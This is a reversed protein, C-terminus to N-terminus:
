FAIMFATSAFFNNAVAQSNDRLFIKDRGSFNRAEIRWTANANIYVDFNASLGWVQFGNVTGSSILVGQKDSYYEVRAALSTKESTNLKLILVPSYWTNMRASGKSAQEMGADLGVTAALARNLQFIGYFNHFYRMRKLSDPQDNGIFTSSNLTVGQNPKWTVQTGFAPTTNGDPRHIRQWGNLILGAFYWKGDPTTYALRLGAEYYPSNEALLSRSLNWCDKGAASEFGIHSAFIGADAWLESKRSLKVGANAEYLNRFVGQEASLNANMYTGAALALNARVAGNAYAAKLYGLNLTVEGSRNHSYLFGPRLHNASGNFDKVYYLEAYGSFSVPNGQTSDQAKAEMFVPLLMLLIYKKM